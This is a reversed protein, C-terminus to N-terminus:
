VAGIAFSRERYAVAGAAVTLRVRGTLRQGGFANNTSRSEYGAEVVEWPAGAVIGHIAVGPRDNAAISYQEGQWTFPTQHRGPYPSLIPFGWFTTRSRARAAGYLLM